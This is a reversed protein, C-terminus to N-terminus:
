VNLCKECLFTSCRSCLPLQCRECRDMLRQKKTAPEINNTNSMNNRTRKIGMQRLLSEILEKM